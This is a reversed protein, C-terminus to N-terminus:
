QLPTPRLATKHKQENAAGKGGVKKALKIKGKQQSQDLNYICFLMQLQSSAALSEYM